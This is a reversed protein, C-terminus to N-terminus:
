LDPWCAVLARRRHANGGGSGRGTPDPPHLRVGRGSAEAEPQAPQPRQAAVEPGGAPGVVRGLQVGQHAAEHGVHLGVAGRAGLQVGDQRQGRRPGAGRLPAGGVPEGPPAGGRQDVQEVGLGPAAELRLERVQQQAHPRPVEAVEAGRLQRPDVGQVPARHGLLVRQRPLHRPHLLAVAAHDGRGPQRQVRARQHCPDPRHQASRVRQPQARHPLCHLDQLGRLRRLQEDGGRVQLDAEALEAELVAGAAVLLV